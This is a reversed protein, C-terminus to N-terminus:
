AKEDLNEPNKPPARADGQAGVKEPQRDGRALLDRRLESGKKNFLKVVHFCHFVIKAERLYTSEADCYAKSMDM